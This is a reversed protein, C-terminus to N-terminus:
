GRGVQVPETHYPLRLECLVGSSENCIRLGARDGYLHQLRLQTNRLGIGPVANMRFDQPLAGDNVVRIVLDKGDQRATVEIRGRESQQAIGHRVANEVLPQLALNPVLAARLEAPVDIRVTLRDSFRLAEIELYREVQEIELSLPVEQETGTDLVRRLLDSLQTLVRISTTADGDRVYMAATNLTNFLFHPQLQMRLGHLQAEVLRSELKAAAVERERLRMQSHGVFGIATVLSYFVLGFVAWFIMSSVILDGPLRHSPVVEFAILGLASVLGCGAGIALANAIHRLVMGPRRLNEPPHAHSFRLIPRTLLAWFYWPLSEALAVRWFPQEYERMTMATIFVAPITWLLWPLVGGPIRIRM